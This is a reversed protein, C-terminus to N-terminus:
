PVFQEPKGKQEYFIIINLNITNKINLIIYVYRFHTLFLVVQSGCIFLFIRVM